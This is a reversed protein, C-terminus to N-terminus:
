GGPRGTGSGPSGRREVWDRIRALFRARSFDEARGRLRDASWETRLCRDIGAALDDATPRDVFTGTRGEVVTDLYGGFRLAVTPTGHAAAELPTLGYDEYSPAVLCDAEDYLWHLVDDDIRGTFRVRPGALGRLRDREPGTGVVVLSHRELHDAAGIVADVNKYPMLRSVCLVFPGDLGALPRRPGDASLAPAPPICEAERRYLDVIREQVATSSTAFADVTGAAWRDWRVLAPGLATLAARPLAGFGRLYRERQYLWRAPTFCYALKRGSVRVGHAWGSTSCLVVPADVRHASFAPALLPLARRHDHRLTASRDLALTRVDLDAFAAFTADPDYLSTVVPADPFAECLDLLVREAGGRQTLYDHVLVLGDHRTAKPTM